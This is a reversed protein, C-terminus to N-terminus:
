ITRIRQLHVMLFGTGGVNFWASNNTDVRAKIRMFSYPGNSDDWTFTAQTTSGSTVAFNGVNPCDAQTTFNHILTWSSTNGEM